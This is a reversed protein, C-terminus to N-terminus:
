LYKINNYTSSITKRVTELTEVTSLVVTEATVGEVASVLVVTKFSIVVVVTTGEGAAPDLLEVLMPIITAGMMAIM